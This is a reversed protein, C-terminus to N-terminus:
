IRYPLLVKEAYGQIVEREAADSEKTRDEAIGCEVARVRMDFRRDTTKSLRPACLVKRAGQEGACPKAHEFAVGGGGAGIEVFRLLNGLTTRHTEVEGVDVKMTRAEDEALVALFRALLQLLRTREDLAATVVTAVLLQAVGFRDDSTEFAEGTAGSDSM